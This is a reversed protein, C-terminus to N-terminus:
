VPVSSPGVELSSRQREILEVPGNGRRIVVLNQELVVFNADELRRDAGAVDRGKM